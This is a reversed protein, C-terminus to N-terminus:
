DTGRGREQGLYPSCSDDAVGKRYPAEAKDGIKFCHLWSVMASFEAVSLWFLGKRRRVPKRPYKTM